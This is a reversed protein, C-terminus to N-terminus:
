DDSALGTSISVHADPDAIAVLCPGGSLERREAGVISGGEFEWKEMEPDPNAPLRYRGDGLPTAQVALWTDVGEDLLYVCITETDVVASVLCREQFGNVIVFERVGNM